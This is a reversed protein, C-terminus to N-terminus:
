MYSWLKMEEQQDSSAPLSNIAGNQLYPATLLVSFLMGLTNCYITPPSNIQIQTNWVARFCLCTFRHMAICRVLQNRYFDPCLAKHTQVRSSSNALAISPLPSLVPRAHFSWAPLPKTEKVLWQIGTRLISDPM